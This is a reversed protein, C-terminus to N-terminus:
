GQSYGLKEDSPVVSYMGAIKNDKDYILFFEPYANDSPGDPAYIQYRNDPTKWWHYHFGNQELLEAM